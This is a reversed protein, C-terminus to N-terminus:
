NIKVLTGQVTLVGSSKVEASGTGEISTTMGKLSAQANTKMELNGAATNLTIGTQGDIQIKGTAKISLDMASEISVSQKVPDMLIKSRGTKDIIEIKENGQSSDLTIKQGSKDVISIKEASQTDDFTIVHGSRSKIVRKQVKGDGSVVKDSSEPPKEVGNWLGGIIYPRNIDNYEFAVLVEDNIEPIFEIGRNAGAMPTALRAWNSELSDAITPYKVKVRALNDPDKLNTVIGVVVGYSNASKKSRLLEWLTNSHYGSIEFRTTYGSLDYQHIARTVMYRGSFRSGLGKIQVEKGARLAPNGHCTGEAQFFNHCKEDLIAQALMDAEGQTKVPHNNTVEQAEGFAREALNGGHSQGDISPTGQPSARTGIIAQKRQIDWGRVESKAVQGASSLRAQFGTLNKGWELTAGLTRAASGRQFYLKGNEVYAVYGACRARDHVFEMDTRDDQFVHEYVETTSDISIELGSEQAIKTVIDSDTVQQFVRTKKSRHLRHSKDYGRIAVTTGTDTDLNLEPEIAVTEGKVLLVISSEGEAKASIEVTRGIDLLDSDIWTLSPDDLQISFMDPQYLSTDVVIERIVHWMNASAQSGDIKLYMQSILEQAQPM